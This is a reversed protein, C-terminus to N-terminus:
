HNETPGPEGVPTTGRYWRPYFLRVAEAHVDLAHCRDLQPPKRDPPALGQGAFTQFAATALSGALETIHTCGHIGGLLEKVKRLYGPGISLGILKAYDPTIRDCHGVYPMADTAAEADVIRLERDVTIRLWMEHVPEGPLKRRGGVPFEVDKRDLLRGEIDFLGDERKYGVIEITRRHLPERKAKPESLSM